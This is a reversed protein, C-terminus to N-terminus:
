CDVRQFVKEGVETGANVLVLSDSDMLFHNSASMAFGQHVM